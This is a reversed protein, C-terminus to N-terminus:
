STRGQRDLKVIEARVCAAVPPFKGVAGHSAVVTGNVYEILRSHVADGKEDFPVVSRFKDLGMGRHNFHKGCRLRGEGQIGVM